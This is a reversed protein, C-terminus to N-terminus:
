RGVAQEGRGLQREQGCASGNVQRTKGDTRMVNRRKESNAELKAQM